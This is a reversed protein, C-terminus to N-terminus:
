GPAAPSGACSGSEQKQKVKCMHYRGAQHNGTPPRNSGGLRQDLPVPIKQDTTPTVRCKKDNNNRVKAFSTHRRRSAHERPGSLLSVNIQKPFIPYDFNMSPPTGRGQDLTPNNAQGPNCINYQNPIILYTHM